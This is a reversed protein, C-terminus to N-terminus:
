AQSAKRNETGSHIVSRYTSCTSIMVPMKMMAAM